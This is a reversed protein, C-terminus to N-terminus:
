STPDDTPRVLGLLYKNFESAILSATGPWQWWDDMRVSDPFVPHGIVTVDPMARHFEALSRPMHYNATVLRLSRFGQAAMWRATEGANGATDSAEYGLVLCCDLAAPPRGLPRLLDDAGIGRSVGSVFLKGSRGAELIEIGTKLRHTGGTLVVIADTKSAGDVVRRPIQGSFWLFGASWLLAIGLAGSAIWALWRVRRSGRTWVM